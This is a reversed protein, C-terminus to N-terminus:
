IQHDDAEEPEPNTKIDGSLVLRQTASCNNYYLTTKNVLELSGWSKYSKLKM